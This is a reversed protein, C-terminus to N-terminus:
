YELKGDKHEIGHEIAEDDGGSGGIPRSCIVHPLPEANPFLKPSAIRVGSPVRDISSALAPEIFAPLPAKLGIDAPKRRQFAL